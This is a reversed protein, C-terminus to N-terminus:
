GRGFLVLVSPPTTVPQQLAAPKSNSGNDENPASTPMQDNGAHDWYRESLQWYVERGAKGKGLMGQHHLETLARQILNSVIAGVCRDKIRQQIERTSMPEGADDLIAIVATRTMVAADDGGGPGPTAQPRRCREVIHNRM